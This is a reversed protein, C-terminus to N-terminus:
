IPFQEFIKNPEVVQFSAFFLQITQLFDEFSGGKFNLLWFCGEGEKFVFSSCIVFNAQRQM